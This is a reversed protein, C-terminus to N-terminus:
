WHVRIVLWGELKVDPLVRSHTFHISLTPDKGPSSLPDLPRYGENILAQRVQSRLEEVLFEHYNGGRARYLALLSVSDQYLFMSSNISEIEVTDGPTFVLKLSNKKGDRFCYIGPYRAAVHYFGSVSTDALVYLAGDDDEIVAYDGYITADLLYNNAYLNLSLSVVSLLILTIIVSRFKEGKICMGSFLLFFIGMGLSLGPNKNFVIGLVVPGIISALAFIMVLILVLVKWASM